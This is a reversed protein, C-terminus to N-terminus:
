PSSAAAVKVSPRLERIRLRSNETSCDRCYGVPRRSRSKVAADHLGYYRGLVTDVDAPYFPKSLFGLAGAKHM